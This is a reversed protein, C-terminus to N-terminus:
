TTKKTKWSLKPFQVKYTNFHLSLEHPPRSSSWQYFGETDASVTKTDVRLLPPEAKEDAGTVQAMLHWKGERKEARVDLAAEGAAFSLRRHEGEGAGRVGIPDPTAWSDFVMKGLLNKVKKSWQDGVIGVARKILAAPADALPISGRVDYAQLLAVM